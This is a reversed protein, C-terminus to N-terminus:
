LIIYFLFLQADVVEKYFLLIKQSLKIRRIEKYRSLM